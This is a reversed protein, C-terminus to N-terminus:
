DETILMITISPESNDGPGCKSWLKYPKPQSHHEANFYPAFYVTDTNKSRKIEFHLVMLLDWARGEFSQGSQHTDNLLEYVGCTVAVPFKFGAEKALSSIDVLVGDELAQARSYSYIITEDKEFDIFDHPNEVNRYQRLRSDVYYSKGNMKIIPLAVPSQSETQKNQEENKM